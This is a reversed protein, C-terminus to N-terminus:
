QPPAFKACVSRKSLEKKKVINNVHKTIVSRDTRFLDAMQKQNLWVTEEKLNVDIQTKGDERPKYAYFKM